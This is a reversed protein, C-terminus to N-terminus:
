AYLPLGPVREDMKYIVYGPIVIRTYSLHSRALLADLTKIQGSGAAFVFAPQPDHEVISRYPSYRDFGHVILGRSSDNDTAGCILREQTEFIVLGCIWYTSYFRTIHQSELTQELRAVQQRRADNSAVQLQFVLLTSHCLTLLALVLVLWKLALFSDLALRAKFWGRASWLPWLVAPLSVWTCILYRWSNLPDINVANGQILAGLSLCIGVLLLLRGVERARLQYREIPSTSLASARRLAVIALVIGALLLLLYVLSWTGQITLCQLPHPHISRLSTAPALSCVPTLGSSVPLTFFFVVEAHYALGLRSNYGMHSLALFTHLSDLGAPANFNYYILPAAGLLLAPLICWIVRSLCEKWCLLVIWLGSLLIYPVLLFQVWIAVGALLGWLAYLLGRQWGALRHYGLTVTCAVLFLAAALLPVEPYGNASIQNRMTWNSGFCLFLLVILAFGRTYLKSTLFYMCVLFLLTLAVMELRIGQASPGSFRFLLSGLYGEVNGLYSQGYFFIPHEGLSAIHMAALGNFAEDSNFEPWGALVLIVRLLIAIIILGAAGAGYRYTWLKKALPTHSIMHNCDRKCENEPSLAPARLWKVTGKGCRV